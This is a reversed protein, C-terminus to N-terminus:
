SKQLYLYARLIAECSAAHIIEGKMVMQIAKELPVKELTFEEEHETTIRTDLALFLYTSANMVMPFPNVRGLEIWKDAEAGAEEHLEKKAAQLPTEGQEIGGGPVCASNSGEAYLFETVLLIEKEPTMAATVVGPSYEVVGYVGEKGSSRIIRDERVKIWPNEYIKESSIVKHPGRQQM